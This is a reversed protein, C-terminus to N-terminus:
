PLGSGARAKVATLDSSGITGNVNVDTRFNNGDATQNLRSKIAAVDAATVAGSGNVDGILFGIAVAANVNGNVGVLNVTVRRADALNFVNVVVENNQAVPQVFATNIPLGNADTLTASGAQTIPGNFQFVI